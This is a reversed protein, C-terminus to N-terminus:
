NKLLLLDRDARASVFLRSFRRRGKSAGPPTFRAGAAEVLRLHRPAARLVAGGWNLLRRLRGIQRRLSWTTSFPTALARHHQLRRGPLQLNSGACLQHHLGWRRLGRDHVYRRARMRHQLLRRPLRRDRPHLARSPHRDSANPLRGGHVRRDSLHTRSRLRRHMRTRVQRPRLAPWRMRPQLRRQLEGFPLKGWRHLAHRLYTEPDSLVRLAPLRVHGDSLGAFGAAISGRERSFCERAVSGIDPM